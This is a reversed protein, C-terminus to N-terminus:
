KTKAPRNRKKIGRVDRLMKLSDRFVNVKSARHNIVKVPMESIVAGMNKAKILAEFDFAFGDM